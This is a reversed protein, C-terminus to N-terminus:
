VIEIGNCISTKLLNAIHKVLKEKDEGEKLESAAKVMDEM